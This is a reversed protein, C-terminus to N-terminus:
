SSTSQNCCMRVQHAGQVEKGKVEQKTREKRVYKLTRAPMSLLHSFLSRLDKAHCSGSDSSPYRAANSSVYKFEVHVWRM